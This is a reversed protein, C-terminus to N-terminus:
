KLKRNARAKKAKRNRRLRKEEPTRWSPHFMEIKSHMYDLVTKTVLLHLKDELKNIRISNEVKGLWANCGRHLAGRMHGTKHCHDAVAEAADLPKGCMACCGGQLAIQNARWQSVEKVKLRQM